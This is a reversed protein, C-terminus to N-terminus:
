SDAPNVGAGKEQIAGFVQVDKRGWGRSAAESLRQRCLNALDMPEGVPAGLECALRADKLGLDLYFSKSDGQFDREFM